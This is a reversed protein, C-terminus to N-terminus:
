GGFASCAEASRPRTTPSPSGAAVQCAGAAHDSSAAALSSTEVFDGDETGTDHTSGQSGAPGAAAVLDHAGAIRHPWRPGARDPPAAAGVM